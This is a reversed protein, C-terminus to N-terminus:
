SEVWKKLSDDQHQKNANECKDNHQHKQRCKLCIDSKCRGCEVFMKDGTRVDLDKECGPVPCFFLNSDQMVRRNKMFKKYKLYSARAVIKKIEKLLEPTLKKSM